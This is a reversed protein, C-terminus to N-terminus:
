RRAAAKLRFMTVGHAPLSDKLTVAGKAKSLMNKSTGDSAISEVDIATDEAMGYRTPELTTVYALDNAGANVIFIGLEGDESRFVGSMLAPFVANAKATVEYSTYPLM